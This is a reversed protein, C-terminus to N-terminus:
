ATAPLLTGRRAFSLAGGVAASVAALAIASRWGSADVLLGAAAAGLSVGAVIATLPWAYAETQSGAPAVTGVLENRTALLPAIFVGAPIILLAMTLPSVALVVPAMGVPLLLAVRLHAANVTSTRPRSGYVLGGAASGAAWVALLVGALEPAGEATAFAPVSVELVGFAFGVPVMVVALTRVGPARLAGLLGAPEPAAGGAHAEAAAPSPMAMVFAATGASVCVASLALAAAPAVIAVLLATLIPGSIFIIETAVSDLAYASRLLEPQDHLLRPYQAYLVSSAPPLAIGTLLALAVLAAAPAGPGALIIGALGAAHVVGLLVLVRAGARDVLRASVPAGVGSGLALAGAVVGAIGFSGREAQLFLVVALSDIGMSLRAVVGTVLLAALRPVRLISAYSGM